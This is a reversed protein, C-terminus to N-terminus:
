GMSPKPLFQNRTEPNLTRFSTRCFLHKCIGIRMPAAGSLTLLPWWLHGEPPRLLRAARERQRPRLAPRVTKPRKLPPRAGAERLPRRREASSLLPPLFLMFLFFLLSCSCSYSFTSASSSSFASPHCYTAPLCNSFVHKCCFACLLYTQFTQPMLRPLSLVASSCTGRKQKDYGGFAYM